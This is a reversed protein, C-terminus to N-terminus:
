LQDRLVKISNDFAKIGVYGINQALQAPTFSTEMFLLMFERTARPMLQEQEMKKIQARIADKPDPAHAAEIEAVDDNTAPVSGIPLLHLFSADELFHLKNDPSKYHMVKDKDLSL